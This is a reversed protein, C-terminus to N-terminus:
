STVVLGYRQGHAKAFETILVDYTVLPCGLEIATATLMLDAPDRHVFDELDYSRSAAFQTLPLREIGPRQVFREVWLKAPLDLDLRGVHVLLAIEWASIASFFITGGNGWCQDIVQRTSPRLRDDGSNLWIAIHTDILLGDSV